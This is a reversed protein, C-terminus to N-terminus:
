IEKLHDSIFIVQFKGLSKVQYTKRQLVQDQWKSHKTCEVQHVRQTGQFCPNVQTSLTAPAGTKVTEWKALLPDTIHSYHFCHDCVPSRGLIKSLSKKRKNPHLNLLSPVRTEYEWDQHDLHMGTESMGKVPSHTFSPSKLVKIRRFVTVESGTSLILIKYQTFKLSSCLVLVTEM